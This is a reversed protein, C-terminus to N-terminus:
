YTWYEHLNGLRRKVAPSLMAERRGFQYGAWKFATRFVMMPVLFPNRSRLFALESLLFRKGEGVPEGFRERMWSERVHLVGTDFYRRFIQMLTQNHSHYVAADAVYATRWGQLTMKAAVYSDEATIIGSPFSGVAELATRRYAGLNNSLFITKFGLTKRSEIDRVVSTAPYNYACAHQAFLDADAHPLQRGYAAGITPDDFVAALKRVTDPSAMIADPTTYILIDAWPVLTAALARSGGHNFERRPIVHVNFGFSQGREATKDKSESDIILVQEPKIGQQLLPAPFLDFYRESNWTTLIVAVRSLDPNSTETMTAGKM